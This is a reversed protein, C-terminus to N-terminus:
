KSYYKSIYVISFCGFRKCGIVWRSLTYNDATAAKLSDLPEDFVLTVTTGSAYARLLKPSTQDANIGDVSNKKGPTGGSPDNSAKWNSMGSCPNKTDIMELTWGGDAKLANQYWSSSYQVAHITQGAADYLILLTGANDLSPFSTVSVTSGFPTLSAVASSTCVIVFSDPQLVFSPMNGSIGSTSGVKWGMLNIPFASTNKLEIWENDPLGIQPDPDAMIEDIVVDYQQPTYISFTATGNSIANGSVDTVGNINLTYVVANALPTAFSLHVLSPNSADRAATNPSGLTTASYNTIAQSTNVDVPENFLVDVTTTSTATVSTISPPTVDPVYNSVVIDDFYHRKFFSSTSQKIFFGFYSSTIYTADTVLGESTYSTGTGSLDRYLIWQNNADRVVKIKMVNNSTNLIGNIGDIIKTSTGNADKRYLCIDDDTNGIRVFYGFNASATLDNGSSILYVDIYNASSPNFAIQIYMEWQAVTAFTSPTTLYFNDNAITDNSQLQLSSNIIFDNTSGSWVPNSTFDGDNFNDSFQAHSVLSLCLCICFCVVFNKIM